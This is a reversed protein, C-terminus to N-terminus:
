CTAVSPGPACYSSGLLLWLLAPCPLAPCPCPQVPCSLVSLTPAPDPCPLLLALAPCIPYKYAELTERFEAGEASRRRGGYKEERDLEEECRELEESIAYRMGQVDLWVCTGQEAMGHVNPHAVKRATVNRKPRMFRMFVQNMYTTVIKGGHWSMVHWPVEATAYAAQYTCVATRSIVAM